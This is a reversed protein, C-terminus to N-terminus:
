TRSSRLLSMCRTGVGATGAHGCAGARRSSIVARWWVPSPLCASAGSVTIEALTPFVLTAFPVELASLCGNVDVENRFSSVHGYGADVTVRQSHRHGWVRAQDLHALVIEAKTALVVDAPVGAAWCRAPDQAWGEFFRGDTRPPGRVSIYTLFGWMLYDTVKALRGCYQYRVGVSKSGAEVVDSEDVM